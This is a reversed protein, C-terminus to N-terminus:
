NASAVLNGGRRCRVASAATQKRMTGSRTRGRALVSRRMTELQDLTLSGQKDHDLLQFRELAAQEFEARQGGRNFDADAAAVPEPINLLGYRAAGQLSGALFDPERARQRRGHQSTNESPNPAPKRAPRVPGGNLSRCRAPHGPAVEWEYQILEDPDIEGDRDADLEAFFRDADAQLRM